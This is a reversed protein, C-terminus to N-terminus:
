LKTMKWYFKEKRLTKKEKEVEKTKSNKTKKIKKKENAITTKTHM